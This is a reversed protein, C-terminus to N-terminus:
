GGSQELYPVAATDDLAKVICPSRKADLRSVTEVEPIERQLLSGYPFAVTPARSGDKFQSTVRYIEKADDFGKDFAREARFFVIVLSICALGIALGIVQILTSVRRRLLNRMATKLHTRFMCYVVLDGAFPCFSERGKM